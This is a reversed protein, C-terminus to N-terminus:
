TQKQPARGLCEEVCRRLAERVRHARLRLATPSIGMERAMLLRRHRNRVAGEDYYREILDRGAPPQRRMCEDLCELQREEEGENPAPPPSPLPRPGARLSELYVKQAVGYFYRAPDGEYRGVIDPLRLTVRNITEDALHEAERCGRCTFIEILRRRVAEYKRGAAERDPGLWDLLRDFAEKTLVWEKHM